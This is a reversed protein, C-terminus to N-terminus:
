VPDSADPGDGQLRGPRLRELPELYACRREDGPLPSRAVKLVSYESGNVALRSGVAPAEGSTQHLAYGNPSWAFLLHTVAPEAVPAAEPWLEPEPELEPELAAVAEELREIEAAKAATAEEIRRLAEEAQAVEAERESDRFLRRELRDRRANGNGRDPWHPWDARKREVGM